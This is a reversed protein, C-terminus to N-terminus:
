TILNSQNILKVQSFIESSHYAQSLKADDDSNDDDDDDHDDDDGNDDDNYNIQPLECFGFDIRFAIKQYLESYNNNQFFNCLSEFLM